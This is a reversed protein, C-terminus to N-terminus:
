TSAITVLRGTGIEFFECSQTAPQDIFGMRTAAPNECFSKQIEIHDFSILFRCNACCQNALEQSTTSTNAVANDPSSAAPPYAVIGLGATRGTPLQHDDFM